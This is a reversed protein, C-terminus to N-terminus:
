EMRLLSSPDVSAARRAPIFSAALAVFLLLLSASVFSVMDTAQVEYLLTGLIRKLLLAGGIGIATGLGALSIGRRLVMWIVQGRQSGLAMRIGIERSRLGVSYSLVGYVGVTALVLAVSAFITLLATNLWQPGLSREVVEEMTRVDYLPQNPDVEHFASIVSATLLGPDQSTRVALAM